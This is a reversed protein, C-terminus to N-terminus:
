EYHYYLDLKQGEGLIKLPLIKIEAEKLTLTWGPLLLALGLINVMLYKNM